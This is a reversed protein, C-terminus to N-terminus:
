EIERGRRPAMSRSPARAFRRARRLRPLEQRPSVGPQAAVPLPVRATEATETLAVLPVRQGDPRPAEADRSPPHSGTSAAAEDPVAREKEAEGAEKPYAAEAQGESQPRSAAPARGSPGARLALM